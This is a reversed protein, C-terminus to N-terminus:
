DALGLILIHQEYQIKEEIHKLIYINLCVEDMQQVLQWVTERRM